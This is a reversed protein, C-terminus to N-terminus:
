NAESYRWVRHCPRHDLLSMTWSRAPNGRALDCESVRGIYGLIHSLSQVQESLPYRRRYDQEVVVGPMDTANERLVLAIERPVDLKIPVTQFGPVNARDVLAAIPNEVRVTTTYAASIKLAVGSRAPPVHLAVWTHPGPRRAADLALAGVPLQRLDDRLGSTQELAAAPSITLTGTLAPTAGLTPPAPVGLTQFEAVPAYLVALERAAASQDAAITFRLPPSDTHRQASAVAALGLGQILDSRLLLDQDLVVAPSITLTTSIGLLQGLRAFVAARESRATQFDPLDAPRISVTFIPVSEALLTKGDAAFIEGRIPRVPLFRTTRVHTAYRYKNAETDVLQLQYLRGVLVVFILLAAIRPLLLCNM